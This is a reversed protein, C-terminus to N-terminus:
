HGAPSFHGIAGVLATITALAFLLLLPWFSWHRPSRGHTIMGESERRFAQQQRDQSNFLQVEFTNSREDSRCIGFREEWDGDLKRAHVHLEFLQVWGPREIAKLELKLLKATRGLYGIKTLHDRLDKETSKNAILPM